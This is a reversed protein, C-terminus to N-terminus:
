ARPSQPWIPHAQARPTRRGTCPCSGESDDWTTALNAAERKGDIAVALDTEDREQRRRGLARVAFTVYCVCIAITVIALIRTHTSSSKSQHGGRRVNVHISRMSPSLPKWTPALKLGSSLGSGM